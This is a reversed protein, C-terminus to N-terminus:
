ITEKEKIEKIKEKLASIRERLEDIKEVPVSDDEKVKLYMIELSYLKDEFEDIKRKSKNMIHSKFEGEDVKKGVKALIENMKSIKEDIEKERQKLKQFMLKEEPDHQKALSIKKEFLESIQQELREVDRSMPKNISARKVKRLQSYLLERKVDRDEVKKSAIALNYFLKRLGRHM